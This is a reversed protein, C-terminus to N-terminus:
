SGTIKKHVPNGCSRFFDLFKSFFDPFNRFVRSIKVLFRMLIKLGFEAEGRFIKVVAGFILGKSAFEPM